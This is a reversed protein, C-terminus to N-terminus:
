AESGTSIIVVFEKGVPIKEEFRVEIASNSVRATEVIIDTLTDSDYVDIRVHKTSFTHNITFVKTSGDGTITRVIQMNNDGIDPNTPNGTGSEDDYEYNSMVSLINVYTNFKDNVCYDDHRNKFKKDYEIISGILKEAENNFLNVFVISNQGFLIVEIIFEEKKTALLWDFKFNNRFFVHRETYAKSGLPGVEGIEYIGLINFRRSQEATLTDFNITNNKFYNFFNSISEPNKWIPSSMCEVAFKEKFKTSFGILM